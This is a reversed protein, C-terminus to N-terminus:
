VLMRQPSGSTLTKKVSKALPKILATDWIREGNPYNILSNMTTPIRTM